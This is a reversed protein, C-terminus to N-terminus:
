RDSQEPSPRDSSAAIDREEVHEEVNASLRQYFGLGVVILIAAILLFTPYILQPVNEKGVHFVIVLAELFIAVAVTSVLRTLSRRAESALQIERRRVVEEETLYRAIEFTAIAVVLYGIGGLAAETVEGGVLAERFFQFVADGALVLALLLLIIAIVGYVIRSLPEFFRTM